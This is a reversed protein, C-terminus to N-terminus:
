EREKIYKKFRPSNHIMRPIKKKFRFSNYIREHINEINTQNIWTYMSNPNYLGDKIEEVIFKLLDKLEKIEEETM